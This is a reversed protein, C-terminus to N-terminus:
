FDVRATTGSRTLAAKVTRTRGAWTVTIAYDGLFGRTRYVGRGDTEGRTDTRWRHGVLEEWVRGSPTLRWDRTWLAAEPRWHDGAWFGWMLFGEVAPHSFCITLYDRLYDAQLKPDPVSTDFETIELPIGHRAFRDLVAYVKSPPTLLENFHSEIGIGGLPAGQALLYSIWGDYTDITHKDAGLDDTIGNENIFLRAAPDARHAAEYWDVIAHRGLIDTLAHNEVPENVVDWEVCRGKLASVEGTIHDLIRRRLAAPDGFRKPVDAPLYSPSQWVLNHGRVSLGHARLWALDDLTERHTYGPWQGEWVEWKLALGLVVRNFARAATERYRRGDPTEEFAKRDVESGFAFSQRTQVARVGAGRAPRGRATAIVTLAGKRYRDIRAQAARRWPANPERGEYTVPTRPLDEIRVTSGYDVLSVGGIEITQPTFGLHFHVIAEGLPEDQIAKFPVQFRKWRTGTAASYYVSKEYTRADELILDTRGLTSKPGASRMWFTALLIDDKKIPAIAPASLQVDWSNTPERTTTCRLARAFPVGRVPVLRVSAIGGPRSFAMIADRPLLPIGAPGPASRGANAAAGFAAMLLAASVWPAHRGRAAQPLITGSGPFM